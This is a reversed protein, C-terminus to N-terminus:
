GKSKAMGTFVVIKSKMFNSNKFTSNSKKKLISYLPTEFDFHDDTNVKTQPIAPKASVPLKFKSPIIKNIMKIM